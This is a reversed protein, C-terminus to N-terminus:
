GALRPREAEREFAFGAYNSEAADRCKELYLPVGGTFNLSERRKGPINAGMYWSDAKPILSQQVTDDVFQAWAADAELTSECHTYGNALIHKFLNVLIEGQYEASSPGNWFGAPSQPGYLWFFNPFGAASIGLQTRIGDKWYENMTLGDRGTITMNRIAGSVADFGTAYAIIDVEFEGETTVISNETIRLIPTQRTDVLTANDRNFIEFYGNELSCRKVGFPHVPNTPALMEAIKPDKVRKRVKDRWFNYAETNIKEDSFIDYYNGLWFTFGESNWLKEWTAQREEPTADAGATEILGFDFGGFTHARREFRAPYDKKLEDQMEVTYQVQDMPLCTNPTRQFVVVESAEKAAEQAVQVGTAGTGIVAVRKGKFSLGEQPWLATHHAHGKFREVGEYKPTYPPSSTGTALIVYRATMTEGDQLKLTWYNGDENYTVARVWSGLKVDKKLNWKKDVYDFYTRLEAWGPYQQSWNWDRWLEPDSYEYIPVHTDVRAGPYCNWHWIGGIDQGADVVRVSLGLKRLHHLQYLGAFGAGVVIVDLDTKGGIGADSITNQQQITAMFSGM